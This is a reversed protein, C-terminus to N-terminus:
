ENQEMRKAKEWLMDLANIDLETVEQGRERALREV